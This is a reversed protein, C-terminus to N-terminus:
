LNNNLYHIYCVIYQVHMKVLSLVESAYQYIVRGGVFKDWPVINQICM